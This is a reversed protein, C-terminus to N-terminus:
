FNAMKSKHPQLDHISPFNEITILFLITLIKYALLTIFIYYILYLIYNSTYYLLDTIHTHSKKNEEKNIKGKFTGCPIRSCLCTIM